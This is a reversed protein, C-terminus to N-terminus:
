PMAFFHGPRGFLPLGTQNSLNARECASILGVTCLLQPRSGRLVHCGSHLLNGAPRLLNRGTCLMICGPGLLVLGFGHLLFASTHLLHDPCRLRQFRLLDDPGLLVLLGHRLLAEAQLVQNEQVEAQLM